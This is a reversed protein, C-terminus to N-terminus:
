LIKDIENFLIDKNSSVEVKMECVWLQINMELFHKKYRDLKVADKETVMLDYSDLKRMEHAMKEVDSPKWYFHDPFIFKGVPNFNQGEVTKVFAQPNGLGCCISINSNKFSQHSGDFLPKWEEFLFDAKWVSSDDIYKRCELSIRQVDKPDAYNCKNIIVATARKVGSFAERLNGVPLMWYSNKKASADLLVLNFDRHLKRHQFGDDLLIVDPKVEKIATRAGLTRDKCLYVTAKTNKSLWLPEDGCLKPDMESSVKLVGEYEGGYGRSVIVVKKSKGELYKCIYQVWPTKGTGGTTLNGVCLVPVDVKHSKLFSKDYLFNRIETLIWFLVAFPLLFIRM